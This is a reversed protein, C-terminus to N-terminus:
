IAVVKMKVDSAKAMATAYDGSQAAAMADSWEQSAGAFGTKAQDVTDKTLGAPVGKSKSLIEM